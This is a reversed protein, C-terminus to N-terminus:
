VFRDSFYDSVGFLLAAAAPASTDARLWRVVHNLGEPFHAIRQLFHAQGNPCPAAGANLLYRSVEGLIPRLLLGRARRSFRASLFRFHFDCCRACEV